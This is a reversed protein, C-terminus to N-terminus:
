GTTTHGPVDTSYSHRVGMPDPLHHVYHKVPPPSDLWSTLIGVLWSLTLLGAPIRFWLTDGALHAAPVLGAAIWVSACWPCSILRSLFGWPGGYLSGPRHKARHVRAHVKQRYPETIDDDTVLRTLRLCAGLALAYTILEAAM